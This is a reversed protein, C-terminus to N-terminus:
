MIMSPNWLKVEGTTENYDGHRLIRSLRATLVADEETMKVKRYANVVHQWNEKLTRGTLLKEATKPGVGTVGKYGDAADGMLTQMMWFRDAEEPTVTTLEGSRYLTCALTQMDKDESVVIGKFNPATAMLGLVDDAELNPMIISKYNNKVFELLPKFVLPKRVHLRAIKYSPSLKKRFNDRDSLCLTVETGRLAQTINDLTQRFLDITEALNAHLVWNEEDWQIATETATASKYILLDADILLHTM